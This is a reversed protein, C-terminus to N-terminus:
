ESVGYRGKFGDGGGHKLLPSMPPIFVNIGRGKALGILYECNPRQHIYEGESSMNVGYVAIEKAGETIALALMYGISSEFYDGCVSVVEEFPYAVSNALEPCAEHMYVRACHGVKELYPELPQYQKRLSAMDHMEFARHFRYRESDWTLGWLEWEPNNWPILHRSSQALGIVAVKM